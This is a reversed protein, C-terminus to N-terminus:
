LREDGCQPRARSAGRRTGSRAHTGGNKCFLIAPGCDFSNFVACTKGEQRTRFFRERRRLSVPELREGVPRSRGGHLRAIGGPSTRASTERFGNGRGGM